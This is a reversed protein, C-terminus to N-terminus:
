SGSLISDASSVSPTPTPQNGTDLVSTMKRPALAFALVTLSLFVHQAIMQFSAFLGGAPNRMVAAALAPVCAVGTVMWLVALLGVGARVAASCDCAKRPRWAFVVGAMALVGSLPFLFGYLGETAHLRTAYKFGIYGVLSTAAAFLAIRFLKAALPPRASNNM